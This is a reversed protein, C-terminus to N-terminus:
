LVNVFGLFAQPRNGEECVFCKLQKPVWQLGTGLRIGQMITRGEKESSLLRFKVQVGICKCEATRLNLETRVALFQSGYTGCFIIKAV